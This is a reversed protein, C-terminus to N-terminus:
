LVNVLEDFFSKKGKAILYGLYRQHSPGKSPQGFPMKKSSRM